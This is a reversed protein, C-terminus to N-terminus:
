RGPGSGRPAPSCTFGLAEVAAVVAAPAVTSGTVRARGGALDVECAAVGPLADIARTVSQQCHSCHMGGVTFELGAPKAPAAAARSPRRARWWALALVAMLAAGAAHAWPGVHEHHHGAHDLGPAVRGVWPLAADLLLGAGFASAAVVALFIALTRRGLVRGITTLTAANTAPGAILFALAAGPSVGLHIFGVALPVSATACVYLPIGVLMMVLISLPGAGVYRAALDAPALAGIVGALVVGLLLPRVLDAPLTVLGYRLAAALRGPMGQPLGGASPALPFAATRRPEEPVLAQVLGGGVLGTLLAVLPRLVAFVPGLLSWTVLISDVGTQPTALLFSVTAPRSAGHARLSAAVPIVGCSCLPLPVGFAAAKAVPGLGRGGLHRELWAPAVVTSLLGAVLFGLLLWPAMQATVLWTQGLVDMFTAAM